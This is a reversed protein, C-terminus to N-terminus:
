DVVSQWNAKLEELESELDQIRKRLANSEANQKLIYEISVIDFSGQDNSIPMWHKEYYPPLDDETLIEQISNEEYTVWTEEDCLNRAIKAAELEDECHIVTHFTAKYLNKKM